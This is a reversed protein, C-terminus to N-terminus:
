LYPFYVQGNQYGVALVEGSGTFRLSRVPSSSAMFAVHCHFGRGHRVAHVSLFDGSILTLSFPILWIGKLLFNIFAQHSEGGHFTFVLM